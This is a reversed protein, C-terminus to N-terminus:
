GVLGRAFDLGGADRGGTNLDFPGNGTAIYINGSPDAAPGDGSQWIASAGQDPSTCFIAVQHLVGTGQARGQLFADFMKKWAQAHVRATQTLVGDLDFLCASITPRLGLHTRDAAVM